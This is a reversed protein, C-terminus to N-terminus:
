LFTFVGCHQIVFYATNIGGGEEERTHKVVSAHVQRTHTRWVCMCVRHEAASAVVEVLALATPHM